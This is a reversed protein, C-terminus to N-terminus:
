LHLVAYGSVAVYKHIANKETASINLQGNLHNQSVNFREHSLIFRVHSVNSRLLQKETSAFRNCPIKSLPKATTFLHFFKCFHETILFLYTSKCKWLLSTIVVFFIILRCISGNNLIHYKSLFLKSLRQEIAVETATPSYYNNGLFKFMCGRQAVTQLVM